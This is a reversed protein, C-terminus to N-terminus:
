VQKLPEQLEQPTDKKKKSKKIGTKREILNNDKQKDPDSTDNKLLTVDNSWPTVSSILCAIYDKYDKM